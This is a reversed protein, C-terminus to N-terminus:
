VSLLHKIEVIDEKSVKEKLVYLGECGANREAKSAKACYFFRSAGSANPENYNVVEGSKKTISGYGEYKDTRSTIKHPKTNGVGQTQEDLMKVPCDNDHRVVFLSQLEKPMKDYLQTDIKM